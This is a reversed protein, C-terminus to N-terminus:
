SAKLFQGLRDIAEGNKDRYLEPLRGRVYDKVWEGALRRREDLTIIGRAQLNGLVANALVIVYDRSIDDPAFLAYQALTKLQVHAQELARRSRRRRLRHTLWQFFRGIDPRSSQWRCGNSQSGYGFGYDSRASLGMSNEGFQTQLAAQEGSGLDV